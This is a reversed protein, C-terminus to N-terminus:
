LNSIINKWIRINQFNEVKVGLHRNLESAAKPLIM